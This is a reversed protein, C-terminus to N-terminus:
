ALSVRITKQKMKFRNIYIGLNDELWFNKLKFDGETAPSNLWTWQREILKRYSGASMFKLKTLMKELDDQTDFLQSDDMVRTYPLCKTAFLPVGISACEM